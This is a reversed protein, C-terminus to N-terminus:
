RGWRAVHIPFLQAIELLYQGCRSQDVVVGGAFGLGRGGVDGHGLLQAVGGLLEADDDVVVQDDAAAAVGAEPSHTQQSGGAPRYTLSRLLANRRAEERM